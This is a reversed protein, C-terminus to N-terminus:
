SLRSLVEEFELLESEKESRRKYEIREGNRSSVVLRVPCGILDADSFKVGPSEDRDDWLVEIGADNLKRYVSEAYSMVRSEHSGLSVLHVQFPAVSEPWIIGRDDHHVEVITAMARGIGYGYCGMYYEKTKGDKDTFLANKMKSSYHYGLQFINGVEVGRREVLKKGADTVHGAQALAIDAEIDAKYDRDINMNLMDKHLANAGGYANKIGRLSDDAVIVLEIGKSLNDKIGVPSIFGPESHLDNRVEEPTAMELHHAGSIHQLKTENVDLDGRIIALVYRGKEDKYLVDKIQQWLPLGHIKQGDEMTTGRVADVQKMEKLDEEVNKDEKKFVAVDEHSCYSGDETSLFRTEGVEHEVVCEHCYDGGIYGGDAAVKVPELGIRRTIVDYAEWMAEYEKEFDSADVHFSYADKMTFERVRLLGGRARFEDRFKESFQYINFPLDKYSLNFKRALDVIMEEATGGLAFKAGRRDELQMLEFGAANDRNTEQWLELPHLTPALIEQAARKNMEERIIKIIKAKVKLGLPLFYYRGATSERAFGAQYLLRHSAFKMDKKADKVTKGFLKSYKMNKEKEIYEDTM